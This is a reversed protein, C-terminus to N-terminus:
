QTPSGSWARTVIPLYVSASPTSTPKPLEASTPYPVPPPVPVCDRRVFNDNTHVLLNECYTHFGNIISDDYDVHSNNPTDKALVSCYVDIPPEGAPFTKSLTVTIEWENRGNKKSEVNVYPLATDRVGCVDVYADGSTSCSTVFKDGKNGYVSVKCGSDYRIPDNDPLQTKNWLIEDSVSPTYILGNVDDAMVALPILLLMSLLATFSAIKVSRYM